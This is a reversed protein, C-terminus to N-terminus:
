ENKICRVSFADTKSGQGLSASSMWEVLGLHYANYDPNGPTTSWWWGRSKLTRFVAATGDRTGGPLARFGWDVADTNPTNWHTNGSEKLKSGAVSYGGLYDILIQWDEMTPVRWGEPALKGTHVAYWNYLLGYVEKNSSSNAYTSYGPETYNYGSIVAISTRDNYTTTKLNEVMWTQTGIKITHYVNGDLDTVTESNQTNFCILPGYSVGTSNEAFARLCYRTGPTLDQLDLWHEHTTMTSDFYAIQANNLDPETEGAIWCLGLRKLTGGSVEVKVGFSATTQGVDKLCTKLRAPYDKLCRVSMGYTQEFPYTFAYDSIMFAEYYPDNDNYRSTSWWYGYQGKSSSSGDPMRYGGPLASFGSFDTGDALEEIWNAAGTEKLKVALLEDIDEETRLYYMLSDWESVTPIHWGQPALKQTSVALHNYLYGYTNVPITSDYLCRAAANLESWAQASNVEPLGSGDNLRTVRLNEAMWVMDGIQVAPYTNNDIDAVTGADHTRFSKVEGYTTGLSNGAYARVYYDVGTKLGSLVTNFVGHIQNFVQVVSDALTPEPNVASWCFGKELIGEGGDSVVRGEIGAMTPRGAQIMGTVVVPAQNMVCRIPFGESMSNDGVYLNWPSIFATKLYSYEYMRAQVVSVSRKAPAMAPTGASSTWFSTFSLKGEYAGWAFGGTGVAAFGTSDYPPYPLTDWSTSIGSMLASPNYPVAAFLAEFDQETAIHWGKPALKGSMVAFGNYLAGFVTPSLSDNDYWGYAGAAAEDSFWQETEGVRLIPSSDNFCTTRLNEATWVKGGITVTPYHNGDADACNYFNFTLTSDGTPDWVLVGRNKGSLGTFKIRDGPQFYLFIEKAQMDNSAQLSADENRTDFGSKTNVGTKTSELGLSHFENLQINENGPTTNIIKGKYLAKSTALVVYSIGLPLHKFRLINSGEGLLLNRSLLRRGTLDFVELRTVQSSESQFVLTCAGEMAPNPYITLPQTSNTDPDQLGVFEDVLKLLDLGRLKVSQQQTLNDILVSDLTLTDEAAKFQLTYELAKLAQFPLVLLVVTLMLQYFM